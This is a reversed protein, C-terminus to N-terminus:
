SAAPARSAAPESTSCWPRTSASERWTPPPQDSGAPEAARRGRRASRRSRRRPRGRRGRSRSRRRCRPRAPCRRRVARQRRERDEARHRAARRGPRHPHEGREGRHEGAPAGGREHLAAAAPPARQRSRAARVPRCPRARRPADRPLAAAADAAAPQVGDPGRRPLEPESAATPLPATAATSSPSCHHPSRSRARVSASGSKTGSAPSPDVTDLETRADTDVTVPPSTACAVDNLATSVGTSLVPVAVGVPVALEGPLTRVRARGDRGARRPCRCWRAPRARRGRGAGAPRRRPSRVAPSRVGEVAGGGCPHGAEDDGNASWGSRARTSGPARAPSRRRVLRIQDHQGAEHADEVGADHAAEAITLVWGASSGAKGPACAIRSASAAPTSVVPTVTCQTSSPTSVPGTM